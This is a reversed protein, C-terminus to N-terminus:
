STPCKKAEKTLKGGCWPCFNLLAMEKRNLDYVISYRIELTTKNMIIQRRIGKGAKLANDMWPCVTRVGGSKTGSCREAPKQVNLQDSM